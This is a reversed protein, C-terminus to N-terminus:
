GNKNTNSRKPPYLDTGFKLHKNIDTNVITWSDFPLTPIRNVMKVWGFIQAQRLGRGPNGVGYTL